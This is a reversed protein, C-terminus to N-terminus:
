YMSLVAPAAPKFDRPHLIDESSFNLHWQKASNHFCAFEIQITKIILHNNRIRLGLGFSSYINDQSVPHHDVGM